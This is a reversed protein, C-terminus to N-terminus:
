KASVELQQMLKKQISEKTELLREKGKLENELNDARAQSKM